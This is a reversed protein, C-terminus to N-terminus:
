IEETSAHSSHKATTTVRFKRILFGNPSNLTRPTDELNCTSFAEKIDTGTARTQTITFKTECTYPYTAMDIKVSDIHISQNINGQIISTYFGREQLDDHLKKISEDGLFYARQISNQLVKPDPSVSFFLDHLKMVHYQAEVLRNAQVSSTLAEFQESKNIVYIRKSFESVNRYSFIMSSIAIFALSIVAILTIWKAQRKAKDLNFLEEM